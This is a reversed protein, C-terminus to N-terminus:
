EDMSGYRFGEMDLNIYKFGLKKLETVIDKRLRIFSKFNKEPIEIRTLDDYVRIRVNNFGLDKLFKQGRLFHKKKFNEM